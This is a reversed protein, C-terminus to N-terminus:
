KSPLCLSRNENEKIFDIIRSVIINDIYKNEVQKVKNALTDEEKFIEDLAKVADLMQQKNFGKRKLGVLNLGELKARDGNAVGFPILDRVLASVGGIMAHEGIEVRQLVAALGGLRAFDGVKVHGGLSAYNAFIVDNGVICDHGIHVGVMFLGNDGIITVMNDAKTGPQVTVYERIINNKGIIVRSKEGEYKLDQPAHGISAFPFIVTGEGISTIGEIVVHSKLEVNNYIEVEPGVYCFPGIKVNDGIIATESIIASQHIFKANNQQM